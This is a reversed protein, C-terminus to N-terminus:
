LFSNFVTSEYAAKEEAIGAQLSSEFDTMKLDLGSRDLKFSTVTGGHGFFQCAYDLMKLDPCAEELFLFQGAENIELFMHEGAPTVIFDFCGFVLAMRELFALCKKAVDAPLEYPSVTIGDNQVSRWDLVASNHREIRASVLNRGFAVTRVDFANPVRTQIIAPSAKMADEDEFDKASFSATYFMKHHNEDTKWRLPYFSKMILGSSHRAEFARIADIDNSIITEPFALGVARAQQLQVLKSLARYRAAPPNVWESACEGALCLAEYFSGQEKEFLERSRADAFPLNPSFRSRRYWIRDFDGIKFASDKNSLTLSLDVSPGIEASAPHAIFLESTMWSTVSHGLTRMAQATM